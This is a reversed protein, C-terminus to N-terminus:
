DFLVPPLPSSCVELLFQTWTEMENHYQKPSIVLVLYRRCLSPSPPFGPLPQWRLVRWLLAPVRCFVRPRRARLSLLRSHLM